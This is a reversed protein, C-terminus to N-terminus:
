EAKREVVSAVLLLFGSRAVSVPLLDYSIYGVMTHGTRTAHLSKGRGREGSRRGWFGSWRATPSRDVDGGSRMAEAGWRSQEEDADSKLSNREAGIGKQSLIAAHAASTPLTVHLCPGAAVVNCACQPHRELRM